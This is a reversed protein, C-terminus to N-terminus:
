KSALPHEPESGAHAPDKSWEVRRQHEPPHRAVFFHQLLRNWCFVEAQEGGRVPERSLGSMHVTGELAQGCARESSHLDLLGPATRCISDVQMPLDTLLM